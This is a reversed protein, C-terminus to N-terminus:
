AGDALHVAKRLYELAKEKNGLVLERCGDVLAGEGIATVLRELFGPTLPDEPRVTPVALAPRSATPRRDSRSDALTTTYFIGTGPIGMTAWADRPGLTFKAGRPGVWLSGGSRSLNLTV